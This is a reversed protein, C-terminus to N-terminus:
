SVVAGGGGSGDFVINGVLDLDRITVNSVNWVAADSRVVNDGVGNGDDDYVRIGCVGGDDDRGSLAVIAVRLGDSLHHAAIDGCFFVVFRVDAGVRDLVGDDGIRADGDGIGCEVWDVGGVAADVVKTGEVM